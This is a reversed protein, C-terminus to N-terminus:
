PHDWLRSSYVFTMFTPLSCSNGSFVLNWCPHLPSIVPEYLSWFLFWHNKTKLCRWFWFRWRLESFNLFSDFIILHDSLKEYANNSTNTEHGQRIQINWTRTKNPHLLWNVDTRCLCTWRNLSQPHQPSYLHFIMNLRITQNRKVPSFCM